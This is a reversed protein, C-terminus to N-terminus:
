PIKVSEALDLKSLTHLIFIPITHNSYSSTLCSRTTYKQFLKFESYIYSQFEYEKKGFLRKIKFHIKWRVVVVIAFKLYTYMPQVLCKNSM